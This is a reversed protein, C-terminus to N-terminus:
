HGACNAAADGFPVGNQNLAIICGGCQETVDDFVDPCEQSMCEDLPDGQEGPCLDEACAQMATARDVDCPASGEASCSEQLTADPDPDPNSDAPDSDQGAQADVCMLCTIASQEVEAACFDAICEGLDDSTDADPCNNDLCAFLALDDGACAV